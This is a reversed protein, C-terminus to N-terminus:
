IKTFKWWAKSDRIVELKDGNSGVPWLSKRFQMLIQSGGEPRKRVCFSESSKQYRAKCHIRPNDQKIYGLFLSSEGPDTIFGLWGDGAHCIWQQNPDGPRYEKLTVGKDGYTIVKSSNGQSIIYANGPWPSDEGEPTSKTINSAGLDMEPEESKDIELRRRSASTSLKENLEELTYPDISTDELTKFDIDTKIYAKM